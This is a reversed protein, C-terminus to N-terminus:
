INIIAQELALQSNVNAQLYLKSQALTSLANIIRKGSFNYKIAEFNSLLNSHQILDFEGLHYLLLDRLVGQWISIIDNTQWLKNKIPASALLEQLYISKDNIDKPLVKVFDLSLKLRENLYNNDSSYREAWGIRGLALNAITKASGRSLQHHDILHHYVQDSSVPRITIVQSRSIITQPLNIIEDVLLVIIIKSGPEELTKLLANSASESMTEANEIIVFRSSASFSSLSLQSILAKIQEIGIGKKDDAIKLHHFDPNLGRNLQQCAPCQHCPWTQTDTCSLAKALWIASRMKLYDDFGAIVYTAAGRQQRNLKAIKTLLLEARDNGILQPGNESTMAM